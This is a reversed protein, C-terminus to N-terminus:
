LVRRVLVGPRQRARRGLRGPTGAARGAAAPQQPRAPGRCQPAVRDHRSVRVRLLKRRRDDGLPGVDAGSCAPGQEAGGHPLRDVKGDRLFAELLRSREKDSAWIRLESSTRGVIQERPLGMLDCLAPNVDVYRGDSIRSIGAPDPLTQYFTTYKAESSRLADEVERHATIDVDMGVLRLPRGQADRRAVTGRSMLWRWQGHLNMVRFDAEYSDMLGDMARALGQANRQADAPHRRAYWRQWLDPADADAATIGFSEYFAGHCYFRREAVDWEWRGGGLSDMALQLQQERQALAQQTSTRALEARAKGALLLRGIGLMLVGAGHHWPVALGWPGLGGSPHGTLWLLGAVVMPLTVVLGGLALWAARRVPMRTAAARWGLALLATSGLVAAAALTGAPAVYAVAMLAMVATIGAALAGFYLGMFAVVTPYALVRLEPANWHLATFSAVSM